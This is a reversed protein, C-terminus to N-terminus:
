FLKLGVLCLELVVDVALGLVGLGDCYFLASLLLLLM